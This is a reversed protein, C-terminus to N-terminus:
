RSAFSTKWTRMTPILKRWYATASCPKCPKSIRRKCREGSLKPYAVSTTTSICSANKGKFCTFCGKGPWGARKIRTNRTALISKCTRAAVPDGLRGLAWLAAYRQMEDGRDVLRIIFPVAEKLRLEGAAWMVRSTKWVTRFASPQGEAAAKLRQLIASERSTPANKDIPVEPLPQFMKAESQYGKKRKEAEMADFLDGAPKQKLPTTTKTGDKLAAGRRGYRFNVVYQDPGVECLDVEYVKDSNGGKFFLKTQKILKM